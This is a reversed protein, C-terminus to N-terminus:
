DSEYTKEDLAHTAGEHAGETIDIARLILRTMEGDNREETLTKLNDLIRRSEETRKKVEKLAKRISERDSRGRQFSDELNVMVSNLIRYYGDLMDEPTFYELPDGPVTEEGLLRSHASRLRLLAAQLYYEVRPVIEQKIRITDIEEETLFERPGPGYAVAATAALTGALCLISLVNKLNQIQKM